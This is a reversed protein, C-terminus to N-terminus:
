KMEKQLKAYTAKDLIINITDGDTLVELTMKGDFLAPLDIKAPQPPRPPPAKNAWLFTSGGLTVGAAVLLAVGRLSATGPRRLLWVGGCGLGLTLAAGAIMLHNTNQEAPPTPAYTAGAGAGGEGVPPGLDSSPPAPSKPPVPPEGKPVGGFLYRMETMRAPVQLRSEKAKADLYIKVPVAKPEPPVPAPIDARAAAPFLCLGALMVGALIRMRM